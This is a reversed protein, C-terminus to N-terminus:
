RGRQKMGAREGAPWRLVPSLGVHCLCALSLTGRVCLSCRPQSGAGVRWPMQVENGAVGSGLRGPGARGLQTAPGAPGKCGGALATGERPRSTGM